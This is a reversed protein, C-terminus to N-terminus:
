GKKAEDELGPRDRVVRSLGDGL